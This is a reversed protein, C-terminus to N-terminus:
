AKGKRHATLTRRRQWALWETVAQATLDAPGVGAAKARDHLEQFDVPRLITYILRGRRGQSDRVIM